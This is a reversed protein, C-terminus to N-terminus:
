GPHISSGIGLSMGQTKEYLSYFLQAHRTQKSLIHKSFAVEKLPITPDSSVAAMCLFRGMILDKKLNSSWCPFCEPLCHNEKAMMIKIVSLTHVKVKESQTTVDDTVDKTSDSITDQIQLRKILNPQSIVRLM